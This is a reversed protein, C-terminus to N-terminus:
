HKGEILINQSLSAPVKFWSFPKPLGAEGEQLGETRESSFMQAFEGLSVDRGSSSAENVALEFRKALRGIRHEDKIFAAEGQDFAHSLEGPDAAFFLAGHEKFVGGTMEAFGIQSFGATQIAYNQFVMTNASALKEAQEKTLTGELKEKIANNHTYANISTELAKDSMGQVGSSCSDIIVLYPVHPHKETPILMPKVDDLERRAQLRAEKQERKIQEPTMPTFPQDVGQPANNYAKKMKVPINDIFAKMDMTSEGDPLEVKSMM